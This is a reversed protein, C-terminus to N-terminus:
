LYSHLVRNVEQTDSVRIGQSGSERVGHNESERVERIVITGDCSVPVETSTIISEKLIKACIDTDGENEIKNYIDEKQFDILISAVQM